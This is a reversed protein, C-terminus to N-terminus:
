TMPRPGQYVTTTCTESNHEHSRMCIMHIIVIIAFPRKKRWTSRKKRQQTPVPRIKIQPLRQGRKDRPAHEQWPNTLALHMWVENHCSQDKERLGLASHHISFAGHLRVKWKELFGCVDAWEGPVARPGWLPTLGPPM